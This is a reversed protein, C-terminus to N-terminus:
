ILNRIRIENNKDIAKTRYNWGLEALVEEPIVIISSIDSEGTIKAIEWDMIVKVTDPIYWRKKQRDIIYSTDPVIIIRNNPSNENSKKIHAAERLMVMTNFICVM